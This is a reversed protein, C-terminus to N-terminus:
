VSVAQPPPPAFARDAIAVSAKVQERTMLHGGSQLAKWLATVFAEEDVALRIHPFESPKM